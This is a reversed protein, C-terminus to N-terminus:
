TNTVSIGGVVGVTICLMWVETAFTGLAVGGSALIAGGVVTVRYGVRDALLGALPGLIYIQM